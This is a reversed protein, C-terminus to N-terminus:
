HQNKQVLWDVTVVIVPEIHATELNGLIGYPQQILCQHESLDGLQKQYSREDKWEM